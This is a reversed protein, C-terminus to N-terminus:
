TMCRLPTTIRPICRAPWDQCHLELLASGGLNQAAQQLMPQAAEFAHQEMFLWVFGDPPPKAPAVDVFRLSDATFEIIQVSPVQHSPM